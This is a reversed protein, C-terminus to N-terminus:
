YGSAGGEEVGWHYNKFQSQIKKMDSRCGEKGAQGYAIPYAERKFDHMGMTHDMHGVPPLKPEEVENMYDGTQRDHMAKEHHIRQGHRMAEDKMHRRTMGEGENMRDRMSQKM